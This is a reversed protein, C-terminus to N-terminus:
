QLFLVDMVEFIVCRQEVWIMEQPSFIQSPPYNMALITPINWPITFPDKYLVKLGIEMQAGLLSKWEGELQKWPIDDLILYRINKHM